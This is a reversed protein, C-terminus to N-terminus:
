GGVRGSAKDPGTLSMGPMVDGLERVNERENTMVRGTRQIRTSVHPLLPGPATFRDLGEMARQLALSPGRCVTWSRYPWVQPARCLFATLLVKSYSRASADKPSLLEPAASRGAPVGTAAALRAGDEELLYTLTFPLGERDGDLQRCLFALTEAKTRVVDPASGLDRLTAMQRAGVVRETGESVVCLMGVVTGTDDHLPSYSFAHPTEERYGSRELFRRLAEDWTADGTTLVQDVRPGVDPWIESWVESAPRGLAWPYKRM